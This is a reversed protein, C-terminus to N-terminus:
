ASVLRSLGLKELQRSLPAYEDRQKAYNTFDGWTGAKHTLVDHSRLTGAYRVSADVFGLSAKVVEADTTSAFVRVELTSYNQANIARYRESDTYGKAAKALEGNFRDFSAYHGNRRRAFRTVMKENAYIFRMWSMAHFHSRFANRSVHVHLGCTSRTHAGAEELERFMDWPFSEMAWAYSMPHTVIEIGDDLSGDYKCYGLREDAGLFKRVARAARNQGDNCEVEIEAGLFLPGEGWFVPDPKFTYNHIVAETRDRRHDTPDVTFFDDDNDDDDFEDENEDDLADSDEAEGALAPEPEPSPAMYRRLSEYRVWTDWSDPSTM